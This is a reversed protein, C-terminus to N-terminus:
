TIDSNSRQHDDRPLPLIFKVTTGKGPGTEIECRGNLAKMREQLNTLGHGRQVNNRDFGQGNDAICIELQGNTEKMQLEVETASAHRIVNNLAEKIALLLSHRVSGSLTVSDRELPIRFHCAVGSSALLEKAESRLYDAFSQLSNRGPDIAWVIVDLSAVLTRAKEAITQLRGKIKDSGGYEGLGASALLSVATLGTGLEDHLDRAIRSREAEAARQLEARQRNRVEIELLRGREQIQRQLEKNWLLVVCLLVALIGSLILMRRFTWWSPTELIRVGAPSSLLLDFGSVNGDGSVKGRPSYVGTLELLSGAPPLSITKSPSDIRARFAFFGSQLELFQDSGERWHNMLTAVVQVLTGAYSAQLLHAPTLKTPSPLPADGTKRMTAERLEVVSGGLALFGVADVLDGDFFYGSSKTTVHIGNTGDALFYEDGRGHIVQGSIKLMRFPAAKPDYFLLEGIRKQPVNFVDRPPPEVVSVTVGGMHITGPEVKHTVANFPGFVCGRVLVIANECGALAEPRLRSLDLTLKGGETLMRIERDHVATIVGEVEVYQTDLSGNMLQEWTARLPKPLPAAGLYTIKQAAIQPAFFGPDTIGDIQFSQGRALPESNRIQRPFVYIGKTADQVVAGAGGAATVVGRISVPLGKRAIEVPLAKIEAITTIVRGLNTATVSTPALWNTVAEGMSSKEEEDDLSPLLRVSNWSCVMFRGPVRKDNESTVEEYAGTIKIRTNRLFNPISGGNAFVEARIDDDGVKMQLEGGDEWSACFDVTGELTLWRRNNAEAAMGPRGLESVHLSPEGVFLRSGDDSGLYFTYVGDQPIRIFGDFELGVSEDRTRVRLDFNTTVGTTVPQLKPFDPLFQWDGEYCRYNLGDSFNTRGTQPDFEARLLVSSPIIQRPLNPGAYRVNLNISGQGNFWQLTIRNLGAHLSMTGSELNMAHFGDNDIVRAPVLELGFSKIAVAFGNGELCISTGPRVQQGRLDLQIFEIGSSDRLALIGSGVNADCVEAVIRFPHVITPKRDALNRLQVLNTVLSPETPLAGQQAASNAAFLGCMLLAACLCVGREIAFIFLHM